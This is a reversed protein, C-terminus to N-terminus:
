GIARRRRSLALLSMGLLVPAGPSPVILSFSVNANGSGSRPPPGLLDASFAHLQAYALIAYQGAPLVGNFSASDTGPDDFLQFGAIVDETVANILRVRATGFLDSPEGNPDRGVYALLGNATFEVPSTQGLNFIYLLSSQADSEGTIFTTGTKVDGAASLTGTVLTSGFTSSQSATADAGAGNAGTVSSSLNRVFPGFTTAEDFDGSSQGSSVQAQTQVFREQNVSVLQASALPALSLFLVVPFARSTQM